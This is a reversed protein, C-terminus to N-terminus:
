LLKSLKEQFRAVNLSVMSVFVEIRDDVIPFGYFSLSIFARSYNGLKLLVQRAESPRTEITTEFM